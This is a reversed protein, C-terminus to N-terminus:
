HGLVASCPGMCLTIRGAETKSDLASFAPNSALALAAAQDLPDSGKYTLNVEYRKDDNVRPRDVNQVGPVSQLAKSFNAKTILSLSPGVLTVVYTQGYMAGKKWYDQIQAGIQPGGIAAMKKAVNGACSDLNPAAATESITKAAILEGDVTSYVKLTVIGTCSREGTLPNKDQDVIVSTGVMFFDAKAESKAFQVYKALQDGSVIQDITIPKGGFYKSRFLDNDTTKVDYARLEGVLENSTLSQKEPTKSPPQYEVLHRYSVNDHEEQAVNAKYNANASASRSASASSSSASAAKVSGASESEDSGRSQADIRGSGSAAFAASGDSGSARGSASASYGGRLSDDHSSQSKESASAALSSAQASQRSAASASKSSSSATTKDSFSSGKQSSFEV